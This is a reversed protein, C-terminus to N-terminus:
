SRTAKKTGGAKGERCRKVHDELVLEVSQSLSRRDQKAFIKLWDTIDTRLRFSVVPREPM